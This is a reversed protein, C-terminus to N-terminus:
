RILPLGCAAHGTRGGLRVPWGTRRLYAHKLDPSRNCRATVTATALGPPDPAEPDQVLIVTDGLTFTDGPQVPYETTIFINNVSTGVLSDMDTLYIQRDRVTVQCHLPSVRPDTLRADAERSRGLVLPIAKVVEFWKGRDPGAIVLLKAFM